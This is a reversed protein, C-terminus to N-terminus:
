PSGITTSLMVVSSAAVSSALKASCPTSVIKTPALSIASGNVSRIACYGSM